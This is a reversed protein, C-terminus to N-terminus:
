IPTATAGAIGRPATTGQTHAPCSSFAKGRVQVFCVPCLKQGGGCLAVHKCVQLETDHLYCYTRDWKHKRTDDVNVRYSKGGPLMTITWGSRWAPLQKKGLHVDLKRSPDIRVM